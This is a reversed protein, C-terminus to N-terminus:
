SFIGYFRKVNYGTQTLVSIDRCPTCIFSPLTHAGRMKRFFM